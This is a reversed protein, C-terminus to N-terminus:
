KGYTGGTAYLEFVGSEEALDMDLKSNYNILENQLEILSTTELLTLKTNAKGLNTVLKKVQKKLDSIAEEYNNKESGLLIYKKKEYSKTDYRKDNLSKALQDAYEYAEDTLIGSKMTNIINANAKLTKVNGTFEVNKFSQSIPVIARQIKLEFIDQEENKLTYYDPTSYELAICYVGNKQLVVNDKIEQIGISNEIADRTENLVNRKNRKNKSKKKSKSTKDKKSVKYMLFLSIPLISFIAILAIIEVITM